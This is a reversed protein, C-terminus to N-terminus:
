SRTSHGIPKVASNTILMRPIRMLHYTGVFLGILAM